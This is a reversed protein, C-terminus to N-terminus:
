GLQDRGVSDSTAIAVMQLTADKERDPAEACIISSSCLISTFYLEVIFLSNASEVPASRTRIHLMDISAQFASGMFLKGADHVIIDPPGLYVDNWCM